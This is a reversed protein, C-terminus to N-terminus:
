QHFIILLCHHVRLTQHPICKLLITGLLHFFNFNVSRYIRIFSNLQCQVRVSVECNHSSLKPSLARYYYKPFTLIFLFYRDFFKFIIHYSNLICLMIRIKSIKLIQKIIQKHIRQVLLSKFFPTM